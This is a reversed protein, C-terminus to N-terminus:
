ARIALKSFALGVIEIRCDCSLPWAVFVACVKRETRDKVVSYSRLLGCSRRRATTTSRLAASRTSLEFQIIKQRSLEVAKELSM